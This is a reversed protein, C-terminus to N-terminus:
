RESFEEVLPAEVVTWDNLKHALIAVLGLLLLVLVLTSAGSLHGFPFILAVWVSGFVVGFFISATLGMIRYTRRTVLPPLGEREHLRAVAAAIEVQSLHQVGEQRDGAREGREVALLHRGYAIALQRVTLVAAVCSVCTAISSCIGVVQFVHKLLRVSAFFAAMDLDVPQGGPSPQPSASPVWAYFTPSNSLFVYSGLLFAQSTVIWTVRQNLLVDEHQIQERYLEYCQALKNIAVMTRGGGRDIGTKCPKLYVAVM